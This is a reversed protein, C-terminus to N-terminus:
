DEFILFYGYGNCEDCTDEALDDLPIGAPTNSVGLGTSGDYYQRGNIDCSPCKKFRYNGRMMRYVDENDLGYRSVKM